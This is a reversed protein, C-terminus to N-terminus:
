EEESTKRARMDSIARPIIPDPLGEPYAVASNMYEALASYAPNKMYTKHAEIATHPLIFISALTFAVGGLKKLVESKTVDPIDQDAVFVESVTKVYAVHEIIPKVGFWASNKILFKLKKLANTLVIISSNVESEDLEISDLTEILLEEQAESLQTLPRHRRLFSINGLLPELYGANFPRPNSQNVLSIINPPSFQVRLKNISALITARTKDHLEDDQIDTYFSVLDDFREHLVTLFIWIDKSNSEVELLVAFKECLPRNTGLQSASIGNLAEVLNLLGSADDTIM